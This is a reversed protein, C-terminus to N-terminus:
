RRAAEPKNFVSLFRSDYATVAVKGNGQQSNILYMRSNHSLYSNHHESRLAILTGLISNHPKESNQEPLTLTILTMLTITILTLKADGGVYQVGTLLGQCCCGCM